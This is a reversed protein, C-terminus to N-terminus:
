TVAHADGRRLRRLLLRALRAHVKVLRDDQMWHYGPAFGDTIDGSKETPYKKVLLADAEKRAASRATFYDRRATPARYVKRTHMILDAM